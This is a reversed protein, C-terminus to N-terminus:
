ICNKQMEKTEVVFLGRSGTTSPGGVLVNNTLLTKSPSIVEVSGSYISELNSSQLFLLSILLPRTDSFHFM